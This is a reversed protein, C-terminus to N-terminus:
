HVPAPPEALVRQLAAHAQDVSVRAIVSQDKPAARYRGVDAGEPRVVSTDYRYPGVSAPDTPGFVCLLRRGLGVALHAAASDNSLVIAAREILAMLQGIGTQGVRDHLTIRKTHEFIPAAQQKEHPAGVVIAHEIGHLVLTDALEAFREAPWCKCLWKATPAILAYPTEDLGQGGLYREAWRRSEAGIHLRMDRVPPIGDAELVALMRDVTHTIASDIKVRRTYGMTALERADAPGVRYPSGTAWTFLGSRGLGQLDYVIDYYHGKLDRLFRLLETAVKPNRWWSRLRRRAFPIVTHLAPHHVIAEAFDDRVLWDIRAEPWARHMSVLAPVTRAVDGLASPRILLVHKPSEAPPM